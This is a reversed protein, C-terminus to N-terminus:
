NDWDCCRRGSVWSRTVQSNFRYIHVEYPGFRDSFKRKGAKGVSRDEGVVSVAGDPVIGRLEVTRTIPAPSLNLVFM